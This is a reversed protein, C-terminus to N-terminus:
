VIICYFSSVISSNVTELKYLVEKGFIRVRQMRFGYIKLTENLQFFENAQLGIGYYYFDRGAVRSIALLTESNKFDEMNKIYLVRREPFFIKDQRSTIVVDDRGITKLAAMKIQYNQRVNNKVLLLGDDPSIFVALGAFFGYAALAAILIIKGRKVKAAAFTWFHAVFPIWFIFLPLWYRFHSDGITFVMNPNDAFIGSGYFVLLWLSAALSIFFYVREEKKPRGFFWLLAGLAAPLSYWWLNKIFVNNVNTLIARPHLGYPLFYNKMDAFDGNFFSNGFVVEGKLAYGSKLIGGYLFLNSSFIPLAIIAAIAAACFVRRWSIFKKYVAGAIAAGAAIWSIEVPRIALAAALSISLIIMYTKKGGAGLAGAAAAWAAVTLLAAFPANPYLFRSSYYWYAPLLLLFLFSLFATKRNFIKKILGYFALAGAVALFPTFFKIAGLSFIRAFFGYEAPLGIFGQPVLSFGNFSISRPHIRNGLFFNLPEPAFFDGYEALRSIFFYNATEDPSNFIPPTSAGFWIYVCFFLLSFIALAGKEMKRSVM